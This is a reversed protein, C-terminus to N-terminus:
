LSAPRPRGAPLYFAVRAGSGPSTWLGLGGGHQRCVIGYADSLGFGLQRLRTSFTPAFLHPLADPDIGEGEDDVSVALFEGPGMKPSRLLPELDSPGLVVRGVAIRAHGSRDVMADAANALLVKLVHRIRAVSAYPHPLGAKDVPAVVVPLTRPLNQLLSQFEADALLAAMDLPQDDRSPHGLFLEMHHALDAAQAMAKTINGARRRIPSDEAAGRALLEANGVVAASLNGLDHAVRYAMRGCADLEAVSVIRPLDVQPWPLGPTLTEQTDVGLM